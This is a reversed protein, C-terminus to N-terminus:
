DVKIEIYKIIEGLKITIRGIGKEGTSLVYISLQGGLLTQISPGAIKIPGSTSIEVPNNAYLLVSQHEDVYQLRIRLGDYTDENHLEKKNLEVNLDFKTSPGVERTLVEKDDKFGVLKYKKPEGGWSGILQQWYTILDEFSIKYKKMKGYLFLKQKLNLAGFGYIASYSFLQAIKPRDKKDFKEENFTEGVIDDVLIPPHKLYKYKGNNPKYRKVFQDNKYLDFYDCNTAVYIDGYIAAGLDGPKMNTLIELVPKKDQQSAYIYSSWKPNRYMDYVGHACIRDGSGFAAHTYYDVFCWGIAGSIEDYKNNDNLVKAHRLAVELRRDMDTTPKNPDMHGLYETVLYPSNGKRVNKPNDLGVGKDLSWCSFDNYAYIDELLESHKVNRVGLTQRTPDLQHAIQNAKSYLNHDDISEDIRVGHAILSPHNREVKIMSELNIYFQRRWIEEQGIHQWGPIENIVLLGIEDCKNLFHESQPYHSTRATNVGVENKLLLADDEQISKPMAYGVYPYSQHRNLGIIKIKKNNLYFGHNTFLVERIGFRTFFIEEEGNLSCITKLLYLHPHDIDWLRPNSINFHDEDSEKVLEDNFYIQHKISIDDDGDKIYEVQIDGNIKTKVFIDKIYTKNHIELSVERYIGSFSLYDVAFGYPPYNGDERTDLKIILRNDKKIHETVDIEVPIYLSVFHGLYVDNLYIDAQTMFGEFKLIYRRNPEVKDIKFEKEYTFIKQYIKEDFYNYPIEKVTHPINIIQAEKPMKKLYEDQFDDIFKWQYNLAIKM